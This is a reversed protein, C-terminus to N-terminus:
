QPPAGLTNKRRFLKAALVRRASFLFRRVHWRMFYNRRDRYALYFRSVYLFMGATPSLARALASKDLLRAIPAALVEPLRTVAFIQIPLVRYYSALGSKPMFRHANRHVGHEIQPIDEAQLVGKELAIDIISTKPLFHLFSLNVMHPRAQRVFDLTEVLHERTEGPLNVILDLEVWFGLEAALRVTHLVHENTDTRGLIEKRMKPNAHQFGIEIVKCGSEALLELREANLVMPNTEVGFPLGIESPYRRAFERLWQVNTGFLDDYFEIYKPKSTQLAGKLEEIVNGVTRVRHYRMHNEQYLKHVSHSNCYTCHYICGRSANTSYVSALSPNAKYLQTKDPFAIQDLDDVIPSMGRNVLDGQWVNWVGPLDGASMSKVAGVDRSDLANLLNALSIEGEGIVAFDICDNSLVADPVLTAHVGGCITVLEPQRKKLLAALELYSRYYYSTMSFCVIDPKLALLDSVVRAPTLSFLGKWNFGDAVYERSMSPDLYHIAEHGTNRVIPLLYQIGLAGCGSDYFLVRM